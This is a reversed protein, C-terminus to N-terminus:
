TELPIDFWGTVGRRQVGRPRNDSFTRRHADNFQRFVFTQLIRVTTVQGQNGPVPIEREVFRLPGMPRDVPDDPWDLFRDLETVEQRM